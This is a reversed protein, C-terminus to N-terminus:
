SFIVEDNSFAQPRQQIHFGSDLDDAFRFITTLGDFESAAKPGIDNDHVNGHGQEVAEFGGTLDELSNWDGLNENEGRM